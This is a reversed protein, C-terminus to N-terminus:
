SLAGSDQPRVLTESGKEVNAAKVALQECPLGFRTGSDASVILKPKSSSRSSPMVSAMSQLSVSKVSRITEEVVESTRAVSKKLKWCAVPKAPGPLGDRACSAAHTASGRESLRM